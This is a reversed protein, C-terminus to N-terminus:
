LNWNWNWNTKWENSGYPNHGTPYPVPWYLILTVFIMCSKFVICKKEHYM